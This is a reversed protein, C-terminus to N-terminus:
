KIYGELNAVPQNNSVETRKVEAVASNVSTM